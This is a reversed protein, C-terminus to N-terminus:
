LVLDKSSTILGKEILMKELAALWHEYYGPGSSDLMESIDGSASISAILYKRFDDWSFEGQEHLAVGLAFARREWQDHFILEGSRRPLAGVGEMDAVEVKVIRDM